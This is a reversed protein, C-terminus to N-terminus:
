TLIVRERGGEKQVGRVALPMAFPVLQPWRSALGCLQCGGCAYIDLLSVARM